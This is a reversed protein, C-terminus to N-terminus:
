DTRLGHLLIDIAEDILNPLQDEGIFGDLYHVALGHLLASGTHVFPDVYGSRISGAAELGELHARVISRVEARRAMVEDGWEESHMLRYHRAHERAFGVYTTMLRRLTADPDSPTHPLQRVTQLVMKFGEQAVAERLARLGGDKFHFTLTGLSRDAEDAVTRADLTRKPDNVVRIAADVIAKRADGSARKARRISSM